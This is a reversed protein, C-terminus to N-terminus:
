QHKNIELNRVWVADSGNAVSGDKYYYIQVLCDAIYAPATYTFATWGHEGGANLIRQGNIYVRLHDCCSETSTKYEFSIDKFGDVTQQIGGISYGYGRNASRWVEDTLSFKISGYTNWFDLTNVWHFTDVLTHKSLFRLGSKLAAHIFSNTM